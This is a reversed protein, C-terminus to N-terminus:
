VEKDQAKGVRQLRPNSSAAEFVVREAHDTSNALGLELVTGLERSLAKVVSDVGNEEFAELPVAFSATAAGFAILYDFASGAALTKETIRVLNPIPL